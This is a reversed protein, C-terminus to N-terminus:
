LAIPVAMCGQVHEAPTSLCDLWVFDSAARSSRLWLPRRWSENCGGARLQRSDSIPSPSNSPMHTQLDLPWTCRPTVPIPHVWASQVASQLEPLQAQRCGAIGRVTRWGEVSRQVAPRKDSHPYISM